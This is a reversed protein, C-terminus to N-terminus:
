INMKKLGLRKKEQSEHPDQGTAAHAEERRPMKHSDNKKERGEM